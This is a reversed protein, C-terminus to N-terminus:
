VTERSRRIASLAQYLHRAQFSEFRQSWIRLFTVLVPWRKSMTSAARPYLHDVFVDSNLNIGKQRHDGFRKSRFHTEFFSLDSDTLRKLAFREM